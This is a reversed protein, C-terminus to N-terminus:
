KTIYKIGSAEAVKQAKSGEKVYVVLQDSCGELPCLFENWKSWGHRFDDAIRLEKLNYCDKFASKGMYTIEGLFIFNASNCGNFTYDNIVTVGKPLVIERLNKCNSFAINHISTVSEPITIETLGTCWQFTCVSITKLSKPLSVDKLAECGDFMREGTQEIGAGLVARELKMCDNFVGIGIFDVSGPVKISTLGSEKFVGYELRELGDPLEIERLNTCGYFASSRIEKVSKPIVVSKLNTNNKCVEKGIIRVGEPINLHEIGESVAILHDVLVFVDSEDVKNKLWKTGLFANNGIYELTSPITIYELNECGSFSNVGIHTVGELLIVENLSKCSSFSIDIFNNVKFTIGPIFKFYSNTPRLCDYVISTSLTPTFSIKESWYKFNKSGSTYAFSATYPQFEKETKIKWGTDSNFDYGLVYSMTYAFQMGYGSVSLRFSDKYWEELDFVFSQTLKLKNEFLNISFSQSLDQKEWDKDDKSKQKIGTGVSFTTFPFKLTLVGRYEDIQPPLTTTLSLEQSFDGEKAAFVFNLNHVTFSEDDWIDTTLYEWEPNEVDESIYKTRIMKLTTNWTLATGSFYDTYYFPKISM